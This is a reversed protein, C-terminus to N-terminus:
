DIGSATGALGLGAKEKSMPVDVGMVLLWLMPLGEGLFGLAQSYVHLYDELPPSLSTLWAAGAVAMLVGLIRPLFTSRIILYGILLCYFGHFVLAVNVEQLHLELAEFALGILNSCTALLSLRRNVPKFIDYLLLTVAVFCLVPVLGVAFLLRGSVFAEAFVATLVSLLYFVGAIRAKLRPSAERIRQM